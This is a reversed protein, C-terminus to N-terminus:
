SLQPWVKVAQDALMLQRVDITAKDWNSISCIDKNLQLASQELVKRKEPWQGNGLKQNESKRLLTMNGLRYAYATAEDDTFGQWEGDSRNQPLIHELNVQKADENLILEPDSQGMLSKEIACLYYRAQSNKTVRMNGFANKFVADNPVVPSLVALLDASNKIQGKRIGVAAETFYREVQGGGSNGAVIGRIGWSTLNKVINAVEVKPLTSLVALLLPRVQQLSMGGLVALHNRTIQDFGSWYDSDPSLIARYYTAGDRLQRAFQLTQEPTQIKNKIERYLDRERTVGHYSSWLQRLFAVFEKEGQVEELITLAGVWLDRVADLEAKSRSLLYNKLLDAITLDAGRDNLTEFITYADADTATEVVVVRAQNQLYRTIAAFRDAWTAPNASIVEALKADFFVKAAELREHSPTMPKVSKGEIITHLYFPDDSANLKIRRRYEDTVVDHQRLFQTDFSDGLPKRDNARYADRMAALLITTTAIRQQGDIISFYDNSDERSLVFSGLFYEGNDAISREMDQWFDDLNQDTWSYSRQYQPVAFHRSNIAALLFSPTFEFQQPM